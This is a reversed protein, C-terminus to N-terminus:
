NQNLFTVLKKMDEEKDFKIKNEKFFSTLVDKKDPMQQILDKQNKPNKISKNGNVIYYSIVPNSFSAPQDSGYPTSAPRADIFNIKTKKYLSVTGDLVEYYYGYEGDLNLLVLKQKPSLIEITKFKDEKPIVMIENNAENKFEVDDKFSNYRVLTNQYNKAIKAEKFSKDLYPSGSIEDYNLSRGTSSKVSNSFTGGLLDYQSLVVEQSFYLTTSISTFLLLIKKM